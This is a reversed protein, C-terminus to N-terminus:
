WNNFLRKKSILDCWHSWSLQDPVAQGIPYCLYFKRIYILNSRSFGKGHAQTLDKALKNLLYTGYDAKIKGNQEFEVIHQGITWYTHVLLNNIAHYTQQRGFDLTHGITNILENYTSEEIKM